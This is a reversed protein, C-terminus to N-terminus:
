LSCLSQYGSRTLKGRSEMAGKLEEADVVGNGDIDIAQFVEAAQKYEIWAAYRQIFEEQTVKGDGDIDLKKM